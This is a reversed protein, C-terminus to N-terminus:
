SLGLVKWGSSILTWESEFTWRGLFALDEKLFIWIDVEDFISNTVLLFFPGYSSKNISSWGSKNM